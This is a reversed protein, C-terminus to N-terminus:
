HAVRQAVGQQRHRRALGRSPVVVATVGPVDQLALALRRATRRHLLRHWWHALELEPIVVTVPTGEAADVVAARIAPTVRPDSPECIRLPLWTAGLSMWDEALRRTEAGDFSVHLALAETEPLANILRLAPVIRRDLVGVLLVARHM